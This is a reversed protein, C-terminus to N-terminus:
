PKSESRFYEVASAVTLAAAIWLLVLGILHIPGFPIAPAILLVFLAVMQVGTKIQALPSVHVAGGESATLERLGAVLMDRWLIILVPIIHIGDLPGAWVLVIMATVVLLKDAIPDMIRGLRSEASLARAAHGDILDTLAAVLFVGASLWAGSPGGIAVFLVLVPTLGIRM